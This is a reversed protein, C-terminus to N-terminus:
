KFGIKIKNNSPVVRNLCLFVFEKNNEGNGKPYIKVSWTLTEDASKQLHVFNELYELYCHTFNKVTWQHKLKEVRIETQSKNSDHTFCAPPDAGGVGLEASCPEM